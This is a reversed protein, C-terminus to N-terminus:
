GFIIKGIVANSVIFGEKTLSFGKETLKVCESPVLKLRSLLTERKLGFRSCEAFTLGESLRLKMMAYETFTRPNKETVSIKQQPSRIFAKVDRPVEFRENKYYSHAGPGIGIYQECRWYKLNHKCEKGEKAFNSIEYQNFGANVLEDAATFYIERKEEDSLNTFIRNAFPTFKEIKLLYASVHQLPLATLIKITRKLSAVSQQPTALMIDASINEMGNEYAMNIAIKSDEATHRRGLMKLEIASFSQVGFSLRNVGSDRLCVVDDSTLTTPNAEVTVEANDTFRASSLIKEIGSVYLSPTGGGFYVTDYRENYFEINRIVANTYRYM